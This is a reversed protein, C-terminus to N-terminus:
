QFTKLTTLLFLNEEETGVTIRLCNDCHLEKSRNRVVIGKELLQEYRLDANDMKILLFNADSKFVKKVFSLNSIEKAVLERQAIINNVNSEFNKDELQDLAAKATLDNINYPPKIKRLYNIIAKSAFAMGLRIGASARAKSFTQSIILNPFSDLLDILSEQISFDIYAEDVVVIGEFSNLISKIDDRNLLNSSPNNPSCIFIIKSNDNAHEKIGILDLQFNELLPAKKIEVNNVAASVKYMGYTPPCVIINDEKPECFVRMVWDIIEDRGNGLIIQDKDIGKIISLKELVKSQLPDPYRNIGNQFPSENADLFVSGQGTFEHRASAYPKMAKVNDRILQDIM